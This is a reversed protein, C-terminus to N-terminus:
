TEIEADSLSEFARRGTIVREDNSFAHHKSMLSLIDTIVTKPAGSIKHTTLAALTLDRAKATKTYQVKLSKAESSLNNMASKGLKLFINSEVKNKKSKAQHTQLEILYETKFKRSLTEFESCLKKVYRMVDDVEMGTLHYKEKLDTKLNSSGM